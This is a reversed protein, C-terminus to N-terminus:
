ESPAEKKKPEELVDAKRDERKQIGDGAAATADGGAAGVAADAAVDKGSVAKKGEAPVAPPDDVATEVPSSKQRRLSTDSQRTPANMQAGDNGDAAPQPKEKRAAAAETPDVADGGAEEVVEKSADAKRKKEQLRKQVKAEVKDLEGNSAMTAVKAAVEELAKTRIEILNEPKDLEYQFDKAKLAVPETIIYRRAAPDDKNDKDEQEDLEKKLASFADLQEKNSLYVSSRFQMGTLNGQIKSKPNHAEFFTKLLKTFPLKEENYVVLVADNQGTGGLCVQRYTPSRKWGGIYGLYTKYIGEGLADMAAKVKIFDGGGFAAVECNNKALSPTEGASSGAEARLQQMALMCYSRSVLQKDRIERKLSSTEVPTDDGVATVVTTFFLLAISFLVFCRM